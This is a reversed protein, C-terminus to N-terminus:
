TKNALAREHSSGAPFTVVVLLASIFYCASAWGWAWRYGYLDLGNSGLSILTIVVSIGLAYSVQRITNFTAGAVGFKPPPIDSLGASSWTAVTLGIGFGVLLGIPVFHDWIHPTQDLFLLYGLYGSGCCASGLGLVWRHGVHDAISGTIPSIFVAVLPGPMLALGTMRISQGWLDQLALSSALGGSTFALGYFMVSFNTSRYSRYRFLSLDLLPEPHTRSRNIVLPFLALGILLLALGRPDGIGRSESQVIAFMVMTVATTGIAVGLLDIRGSADPDSSERLFRPGLVLVLICLPVNVLFIARWSFADILFAGFASLLAAGAALKAIFKM